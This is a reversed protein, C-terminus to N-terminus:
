AVGHRQLRLFPLLLVASASEDVMLGMEHLSVQCRYKRGSCETQMHECGFVGAPTAQVNIRSKTKLDLNPLWFILGQTCGQLYQARRLSQQCAAIQM